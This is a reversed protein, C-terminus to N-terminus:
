CCIFGTQGLSMIDFGKDQDLQRLRLWVEQGSATTVKVATVATKKADGNLKIALVQSGRIVCGKPLLEMMGAILDERTCCFIGNLEAKEGERESVYIEMSKLLRSKGLCVEKAGLAELAKAGNPMLLWGFGKGEKTQAETCREHVQVACGQQSLLIALSLGAPGGSLILARHRVLSQSQPLPGVHELSVKLQACLKSNEAKLDAIKRELCSQMNIVISDSWSVKRQIRPSANHTEKFM